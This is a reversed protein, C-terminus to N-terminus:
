EEEQELQEEESLEFPEEINRERDHSTQVSRSSTKLRAPASSEL